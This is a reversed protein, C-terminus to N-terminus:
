PCEHVLLLLAIAEIECSVCCTGPSYLANQTIKDIYQVISLNRYRERGQQTGGAPM